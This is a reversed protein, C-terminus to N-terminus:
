GDQRGSEVSVRVEALIEASLQEDDVARAMLVAGVMSSVASIARRRGDGGDGLLEEMTAINREVQCSYAARVRPDSRAADAGFAVLPCGGGPDDRHAVSVYWEAFAALPDEAEAILAESHERTQGIAEEVAEAM